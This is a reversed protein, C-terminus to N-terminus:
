FCRAILRDLSGKEELFRRSVKVILGLDLIASLSGLSLWLNDFLSKFLSRTTFIATTALLLQCRLVFRM